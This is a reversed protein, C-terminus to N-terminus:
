KKILSLQYRKVEEFIKEKAKEWSFSKDLIKIERGEEEKLDEFYTLARLALYANFNPYKKKVFSFLEELTFVKLLFFIDVYDRKAPRQYVAILKMAAIDQPSALLTGEFETPKEILSYKYWFFSNDVGDIKCFMTDKEKLSLVADGDFINEIKEYLLVSDFHTKNYFDFDLSTRHGLHLALATGGALYFRKEKLFILKPLIIKQNENLVQPHLKAM